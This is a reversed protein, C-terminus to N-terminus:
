VVKLAGAACATHLSRSMCQLSGLGREYLCMFYLNSWCTMFIVHNVSGWWFVHTMWGFLHNGVLM